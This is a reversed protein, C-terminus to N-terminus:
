CKLERSTMFDCIYNKYIRNELIYIFFIYIYIVQYGGLIIKMKQELKSAKKAEKGMHARNIELRKEMSEIKDKRSAVSARTFRNSSPVYLVQAYCEEWVQAYAEDTLEGHGM